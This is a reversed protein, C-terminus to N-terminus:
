DNSNPAAQPPCENKQKRGILNVNIYRSPRANIDYLLNNATSLTNKLNRYLKDDNMLLALSGNGNNVKDLTTKLKEIASKLETVTQEIEVKSLKDTTKEANSLISNITKNNKELNASFSNFNALTNTIVKKQANLEHTLRNLDTMSQNLQAISRKLSQQTNEDLINNISTITHDLNGITVKAQDMIPAAKESLGDIAGEKVEGTLFKGHSLGVSSQGPLISIAKTGLLDLTVIQAKSDEPIFVDKDLMMEITVKGNNSKSLYLNSVSGINIGKLQVFSSPSVNEADDYEAFVVKTSSFLNSGKLFNYGAIFVVIAIIGLVAIKIEKPIKM